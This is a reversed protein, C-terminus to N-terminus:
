TGETGGYTRIHKRTQVYVRACSKFTNYVNIYNIIKPGEKMCENVRYTDYQATSCFLRSNNGEFITQPILVFLCNPGEMM